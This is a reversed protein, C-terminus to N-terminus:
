SLGALIGVGVTILVLAWIVFTPIAALIGFGKLVIIVAVILLAMGFISLIIRKNEGGNPSSM